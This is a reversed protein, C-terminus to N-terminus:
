TATCPGRWSQVVRFIMGPEPGEVPNASDETLVTNCKQNGEVWDWNKGKEDM